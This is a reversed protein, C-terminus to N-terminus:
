FRWCLRCCPGGDKKSKCCTPEAGRATNESGKTCYWPGVARDGLLGALNGCALAGTCKAVAGPYVLATNM